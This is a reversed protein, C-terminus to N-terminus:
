TDGVLKSLWSTELGPMPTDENIARYKDIVPDSELLKNM